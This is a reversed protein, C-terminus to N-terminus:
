NVSVTPVMCLQHQQRQQWLSVSFASILAFTFTVCPKLTNTSSVVLCPYFHFPDVPNPDLRNLSYPLARGRFTEADKLTTHMM